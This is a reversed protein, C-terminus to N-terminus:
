GEQRRDSNKTGNGARPAPVTRRRSRRGSAAVRTEAEDQLGSLFRRVRETIEELQHTILVIQGDPGFVPANNSNWYRTEYVGPSGPVEADYRQFSRFDPKGTELVRSFSEKSDQVSSAHADSPNDPFAAFINLGLLQDRTRGTVDLYAQNADAVLLEPTLLLVPASFQQFVAAYDISTVTL